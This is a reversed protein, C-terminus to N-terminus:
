NPHPKAASLTGISDSFLASSHPGCYLKRTRIGWLYGKEKSLRRGQIAVCSGEKVLASPHKLPLVSALTYSSSSEIADHEKFETLRFKNAIQTVTCRTISQNILFFFSQYHWRYREERRSVFPPLVLILLCCSPFFILYRCV